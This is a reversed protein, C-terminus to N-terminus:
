FRGAGVLLGGGDVPAFTLKVEAKKPASVYFYVGAGVMAAGVAAFITAHNAQARANTTWRLGADDCLGPDGGCRTALADNYNGRADLALYSAFALTLVGAGGVAYAIPKRPSGGGTNPPPPPAVARKRPLDLTVETSGGKELPVDRKKRTGDSSTFEIVHEGPDVRQETDFAKVASGDLTVKGADADAGQAVKLTIRPVDPDIADILEKIKAVRKDSSSKAMKEAESYWRWATALKGWEEFCRAVNLKAGIGPELRDVKEFTACADRYRKASLLKKGREFLADANEEAWAPTALAIVILAALRTV